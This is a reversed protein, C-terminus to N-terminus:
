GLYTLEEVVEMMYDEFSISNVDMNTETFSTILLFLNACYTISTTFGHLGAQSNSSLAADEAYIVDRLSLHHAMQM